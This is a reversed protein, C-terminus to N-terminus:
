VATAQACPLREVVATAILQPLTNIVGIATQVCHQADTVTLKYQVPLYM